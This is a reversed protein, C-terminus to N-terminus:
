RVYALVHENIVKSEFSGSVFTDHKRLESLQKYFKMTSKSDSEMDKVNEYIYDPNIPLWTKSTSFGAFDKSNWQMPTGAFLISNNRHSQEMQNICELM